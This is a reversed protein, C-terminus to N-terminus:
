KIGVLEKRSVYQGRGIYRIGNDNPYYKEGTDFNSWQCSYTEIVRYNKGDTVEFYYKEPIVREYNGYKSEITQKVEPTKWKASIRERTCGIICPLILITLLLTRM